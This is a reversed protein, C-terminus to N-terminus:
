PKRQGSSRITEGNNESVDEMLTRSAIVINNSVVSTPPQLDPLITPCLMHNLNLKVQHSWLVKTEDVCLVFLITYKGVREPIVNDRNSSWSDQLSFEERKDKMPKGQPPGHHGQHCERWMLMSINVPNLNKITSGEESVMVCLCTLTAGAPFVSNTNYEVVLKVPQNPDPIITLKVSPGHIPQKNFSGRFELAYEVKPGRVHDVVFCAKGDKDIPQSTVSSKVQFFSLGGLLSSVVRQDPSPNGWEDFMQLFPM